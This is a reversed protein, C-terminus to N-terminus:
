YQQPVYIASIIPDNFRTASNNGQNAARCVLNVTLPAGGAVAYFAQASVSTWRNAGNNATIVERAFDIQDDQSVSCTALPENTGSQYISVNGLAVVFGDAPPTFTTSALIQPGTGTFATDENSGSSSAGAQPGSAEDFLPIVVTRNQAVAYSAFLLILVSPVLGYWSRKVLVKNSWEM